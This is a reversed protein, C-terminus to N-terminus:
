GGARERWWRALRLQAQDRAAEDLAAAAAELPPRSEERGLRVALGLWFYAEAHDRPRLLGRLHQLGLDEACLAAQARGHPDAAPGLEVVARAWHEAEGATDRGPRTELSYHLYLSYRASIHGAEAAKHYWGLAEARDRRVGHGGEDLMVAVLFQAERRGAEALPLLLPLARDWRGRDFFIRGNGMDDASSAACLLLLLPLSLLVRLM